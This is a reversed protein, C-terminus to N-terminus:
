ERQRDMICVSEAHFASLEKRRMREFLVSPGERVRDDSAPGGSANGAKERDTRLLLLFINSSQVSLISSRAEGFIAHALSQKNFFIKPLLKQFSNRLFKLCKPINNLHTFMFSHQKSDLYFPFRM